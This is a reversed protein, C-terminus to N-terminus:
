TKRTERPVLIEDFQAFSHMAARMTTTAIMEFWGSGLVISLPAMLPARLFFCLCNAQKIKQILTGQPDKPLKLDEEDEELPMKENKQEAKPSIIYIYIYM